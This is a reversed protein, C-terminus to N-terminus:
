YKLGISKKPKPKAEGTDKVLYNYLKDQLTEIKTDKTKITEELTKNQEQLKTYKDNSDNSHKDLVIGLNTLKDPLTSVDFGETGVEAILDDIEKM